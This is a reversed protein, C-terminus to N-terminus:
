GDGDGCPWDLEAWGNGNRQNSELNGESVRESLSPAGNVLRGDAAWYGLGKAVLCDAQSRNGM